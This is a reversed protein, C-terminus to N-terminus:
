WPVHRSDTPGAVTAHMGVVGEGSNQLNEAM